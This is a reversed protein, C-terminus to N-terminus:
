GSVEGRGARRKSAPVMQTAFMGWPTVWSCSTSANLWYPSIRDTSTTLRSCTRLINQDGHQRKDDDRVTDGPPLEFVKAKTFNWLSSDATAATLASTLGETELDQFKSVEEKLVLWDDAAEMEPNLALEEVESVAPL